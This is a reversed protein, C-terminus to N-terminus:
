GDRLPGMELSSNLEVMEFRPSKPDDTEEKCRWGCEGWHTLQFSLDVDLFVDYGAERVADCLHYDEGSINGEPYEKCEEMVNFRFYPKKLKKFVDMDILLMGTPLRDVAILGAANNVTQRNLPVTLNDHPQSRRVYTCGVVAKKHNMLRHLANAPFTLDSDIQLLHTSNLKAAEDVLRNRNAPLISGKQNCLVLPMGILGSYYSMAGFAMAFNAKVEDGSPVGLCVPRPVSQTKRMFEDRAAAERDMM